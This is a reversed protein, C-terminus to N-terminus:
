LVAAVSYVRYAHNTEPTYTYISQMLPIVAVVLLLLLLTTIICNLLSCHRATRDPSQSNTGQLM